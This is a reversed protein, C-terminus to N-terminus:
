PVNTINRDAATMAENDWKIERITVIGKQTLEINAKSLETALVTNSRPDEGVNAPKHTSGPGFCGWFCEFCGEATRRCPQRHNFVALTALSVFVTLFAVVAYLTSKKM